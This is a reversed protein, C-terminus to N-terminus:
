LLGISNRPLTFHQPAVIVTKEV